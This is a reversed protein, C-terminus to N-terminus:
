SLNPPCISKPSSGSTPPLSVLIMLTDNQLTCTKKRGYDRMLRMHAKEVNEVPVCACAEKSNHTCTSKIVLQITQARQLHMNQVMSSSIPTQLHHIETVMQLRFKLSLLHGKIHSTLLM